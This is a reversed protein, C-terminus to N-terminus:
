GELKDQDPGDAQDVQDAPVPSAKVTTADFDPLQVDDPNVNVVPGHELGEFTLPEAPTLIRALDIAQKHELEGVQVLEGNVTHLFPGGAQITYCRVELGLGELKELAEVLLRGKVALEFSEKIGM